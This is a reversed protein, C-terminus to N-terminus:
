AGRMAESFELESEYSRRRGFVKIVACKRKTNKALRAKTVQEPRDVGTVYNV